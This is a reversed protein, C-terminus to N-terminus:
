RLYNILKLIEIPLTEKTFLTIMNGEQFNGVLKFHMDNEYLLDFFREPYVKNCHIFLEAGSNGGTLFEIDTVSLKDKYEPFVLLIDKYFDKMIKKFEDPIEVVNEEM